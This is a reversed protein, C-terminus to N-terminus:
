VSIGDRSGAWGKIKVKARVRVRVRVRVKVRIRDCPVFRGVPKCKYAL